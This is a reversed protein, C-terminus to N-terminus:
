LWKCSGSFFIEDRIGRGAAMIRGLVQVLREARAVEALGIKESAEGIYPPRTIQEEGRLGNSFTKAGPRIDGM